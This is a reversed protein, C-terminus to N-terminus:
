NLWAKITGIATEQQKNTLTNIRTLHCGNKMIIRSINKNRGTKAASATWPDNEGYIMLINKAEHKLYNQLRISLEPNYSFVANKPIFLKALYGKTNKLQMLRKFPKTNYAYYGLEREAQVFFPMVVKGSKRDFYNPSVVKVFHNLIEDNSSVSLPIERTSHGWQWFSFSYEMVCYDYIESISTKFVYKKENCYKEFLPLIRAKRKLVERQFNKVSKREEATGVEHRIFLDHRKEEVSYNLPAVYAITGTVDDPYLFRYFLTAQGGKSIGTNIWKGPYIQKFIEFIHHHDAAANEVTLYQWKMSDPVSKGFYRHEAFLQNAYLMPCLENLYRPGVEHDANYGETIFVVPEKYELHSLIVRQPFYGKEPKQHDLPQKIMIVYAESFFPNNIMKEASLVDPLALIRKCLDQSVASQLLALSAIILVMLKRNM